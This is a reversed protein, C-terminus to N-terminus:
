NNLETKNGKKRISFLLVNQGNISMELMTIEPM